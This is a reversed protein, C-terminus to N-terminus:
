VLLLFLSLLEKLFSLPAFPCTRTKCVEMIKPWLRSVGFMELDLLAALPQWIFPQVAVGATAAKLIITAPKRPLHAWANPHLLKQCSSLKKFKENTSSNIFSSKKPLAYVVFFPSVGNALFPFLVTTTLVYYLCFFFHDHGFV